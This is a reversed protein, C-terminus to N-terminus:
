GRGVPDRQARFVPFPTRGQQFLEFARGGFRDWWALGIEVRQNRKVESRILFAKV